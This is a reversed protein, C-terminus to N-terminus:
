TLVFEDYKVPIHVISKNFFNYVIVKRLGKCVIFNQYFFFM